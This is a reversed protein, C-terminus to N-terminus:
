QYSEIHTTKKEKIKEKYEYMVYDKLKINTVM